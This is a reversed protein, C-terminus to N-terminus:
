EEELGLLYSMEEKSVDHVWEKYKSIYFERAEEIAKKAVDKDLRQCNMNKQYKLIQEGSKNFVMCNRNTFLYISYARM